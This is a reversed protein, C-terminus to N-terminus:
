FVGYNGEKKIEYNKITVWKKTIDEKSTIFVRNYFQDYGTYFNGKKEEILVELSVSNKNRFNINKEEVISVLEKLRQKAVIGNVEQKLTASHTGKRPSFCFAHLHTLPFEKLKERADEWIVDTEGPHGVIFDSGLAYGLEELECFLQLDSEVSNRRRMIKLMSENTHQLAIHLHKELWSEKLIERFNDDIQVPEVSGLRVRRVGRIKSINKLLNGFSSKKDKGYSGVNTGTLVFEGYGNNALNEIQELIKKEEQSRSHGRVSPIICYSCNFNCGEQIKIYAKCKGEYNNVITKDVSNLDGIKFFPSKSFLLENINEKESHGLVGFLRSKNFLKEGESFAGCGVLFVKKGASNQKTTYARVSSDAGNTVTCSNIVVIDADNENDVLDFDKLNEIMVQTDYINTRCGFTKFFVKPRTYLPTHNM